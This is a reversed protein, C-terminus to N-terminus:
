DGRHRGVTKKNIRDVTGQVVKIATNKYCLRYKRADTRGGRAVHACFRLATLALGVKQLPRDRVKQQLVLQLKM